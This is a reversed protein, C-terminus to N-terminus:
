GHWGVGAKGERVSLQSKLFYLIWMRGQRQQEQEQASQYEREMLGESAFSKIVDYHTLADGLLAWTSRQPKGKKQKEYEIDEQAQKREVATQVLMNVILYRLGVGLLIIALVTGPRALSLCQQLALLLGIIDPVISTCIQIVLGCASMAGRDAIDVLRGVRNNLHFHLSLSQLHRCVALMMETEGSQRVYRTVNNKINRCLVAVLHLGTSWLVAQKVGEYNGANLEDAATGLSGALQLDCWRDVVVCALAFLSLAKHANSSPLVGKRGLLFTWKLKSRWSLAKPM